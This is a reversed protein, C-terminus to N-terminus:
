TGGNDTRAIRWLTQSLHEADDIYLSANMFTLPFRPADIISIRAARCCKLQRTLYSMTSLHVLSLTPEYISSNMLMEACMGGHVVLSRAVYPLSVLRM